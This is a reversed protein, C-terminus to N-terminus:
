FKVSPVRSRLFYAETATGRNTTTGDGIQGVDNNGSCYTAADAIVCTRLVGVVMTSITKGALANTSTPVQQPTTYYGGITGLGLEGYYNEGWCWMENNRRACSHWYGVGVQQMGTTPIGNATVNVPVTYGNGPDATFSSGQGIQGGDNAGWCLVGGDAIACTHGIFSSSSQDIWGGVGIDTVKKSGLHGGRYLPRPYYQDYYDGYSWGLQGNDNGGWCYADGASVIACIHRANATTAVKTVTLSASVNAGITSVRVPSTRYYTSSTNAWDSIGVNIGLQGYRSDGWCYLDGSAIVCATKDTAVLNSLTKGALNTHNIKVPRLSGTTTGNGLQGRNNSGWCYVENSSLSCAFGSGVAVETDERGALVNDDRVVRVPVLSNTTTGNGLQGSENNGWCWTKKDIVGCVQYYGISSYSSSYLGKSADSNTSYKYTKWVGGGSARLLETTAEVRVNFMTATSTNIRATYTTRYQPTSLFYESSTDTTSDCLTNPRYVTAENLVTDDQFSKNICHELHQIGSEAAQKALKTYYQEDINKRINAGGEVSVMLLALLVVSVALVTPLAFGKSLTNM